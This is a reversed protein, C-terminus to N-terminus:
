NPVRDVLEALSKISTATVISDLDIVSGFHQEIAMCINVQGISDWSPTNSMSSDAGIEDRNLDLTEAVLSAIREVTSDPM